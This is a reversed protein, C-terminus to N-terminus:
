RVVDKTKFLRAMTLATKAQQGTELLSIEVQKLAAGKLTVMM